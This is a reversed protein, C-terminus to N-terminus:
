VTKWIFKQVFISQRLICGPHLDSLVRGKVQTFDIRFKRPNSPLQSGALLVYNVKPEAIKIATFLTTISGLSNGSVTIDEPATRLKLRNKTAQSNILFSFVNPINPTTHHRM